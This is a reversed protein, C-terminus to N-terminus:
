GSPASFEPIRLILHLYYLIFIFLVIICIAEKRGDSLVPSLLFTDGMLIIGKFSSSFYKDIKGVNSEMSVHDTPIIPGFM